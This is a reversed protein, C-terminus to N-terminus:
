VSMDGQRKEFMGLHIIEQAVSTAHRAVNASTSSGTLWKSVSPMGVDARRAIEAKAGRYEGRALLRRIEARRLTTNQQTM